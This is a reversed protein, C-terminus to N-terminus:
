KLINHPNMCKSQLIPRLLEEVFLRLARVCQLYKKGTFKTTVSGFMKELVEQM